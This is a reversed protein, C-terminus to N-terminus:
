VGVNKQNKWFKSITLIEKVTKLFIKTLVSRQKLFKKINDTMRTPLM